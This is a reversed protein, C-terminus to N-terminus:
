TASELVEKVAQRIKEADRIAIADIQDEETETLRWANQGTRKELHGSEGDFDEIKKKAAM